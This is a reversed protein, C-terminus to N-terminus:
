EPNHVTSAPGDLDSQQEVFNAQWAETAVAVEAALDAKTAIVTSISFLWWATLATAGGLMVLSWTQAKSSEFCGSNGPPCAPILGLIILIGAGILAVMLIVGASNELSAAKKSLQIARETLRSM